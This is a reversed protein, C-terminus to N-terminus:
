EAREGWLRYYEKRLDVLMNHLHAVAFQALESEEDADDGLKGMVERAAILSMREAELILPELNM